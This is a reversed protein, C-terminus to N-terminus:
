RADIRIGQSVQEAHGVLKHGALGHGARWRPLASLKSWSISYGSRTVHEFLVHVISATVTSTRHVDPDQSTEVFDFSDRV